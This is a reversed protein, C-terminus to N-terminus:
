FIRQTPEIQFDKLSGIESEDWLTNIFSDLSYNLQSFENVAHPHTGLLFKAQYMAQNVQVIFDWKNGIEIYDILAGVIKKNLKDLANKVAEHQYGPGAFQLQMGQTIKLVSIINKESLSKTKELIKTLNIEDWLEDQAKLQTIKKESIKKNLLYMSIVLYLEFHDETLADDFFAQASEGTITKKLMIARDSHKPDTIGRTIVEYLSRYPNNIREINLFRRLRWGRFEGKTALRNSFQISSGTKKNRISFFNPNHSKVYETDFLFTKKLFSIQEQLNKDSLAYPEKKEFFVEAYDFISSFPIQSLLEKTLIVVQKKFFRNM